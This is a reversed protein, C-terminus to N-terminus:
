TGVHAQQFIEMTEDLSHESPNFSVFDAGFRERLYAQV